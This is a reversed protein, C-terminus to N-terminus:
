RWAELLVLLEADVQKNRAIEVDLSDSSAKEFVVSVSPCPSSEAGVLGYPGEFYSHGVVETAEAIAGWEWRGMARKVMSPFQRARIVQRYRYGPCLGTGHGLAAFVGGEVLTA